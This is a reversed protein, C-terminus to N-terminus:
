RLVGSSILQNTTTENDVVELGLSELSISPMLRSHSFRGDVHILLTSTPLYLIFSTRKGLRLDVDLKLETYRPILSM